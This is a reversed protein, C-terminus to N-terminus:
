FEAHRAHAGDFGGHGQQCARDARALGKQARGDDRGGGGVVRRARDGAIRFVTHDSQRRRQQIHARHHRGSRTYRGRDRFIRIGARFDGCHDPDNGIHPLDCAGVRDRHFGAGGRGLFDDNGGQYSRAILIDFAHTTTLM